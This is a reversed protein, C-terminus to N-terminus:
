IVSTFFVLFNDVNYNPFRFFCIGESSVKSIVDKNQIVYGRFHTVFYFFNHYDQPYTFVKGAHKYIGISKKEIQIRIVYKEAEYKM